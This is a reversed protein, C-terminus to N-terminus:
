PLCIVESIYITANTDLNNAAIIDETTTGYKRALSFVTDDGRVIYPRMGPCFAPNAIPLELTSGAVIDGSDIGNIAMLEISTNHKNAISYLTDGPQVSYPITIIQSQRTPPEQSQQSALEPTQVLDPTTSEIESNEQASDVSEPGSSSVPEGPLFVAKESDTSLSILLDNVVVDKPLNLQVSTTTRDRNAVLTIAIFTAIACFIASIVLVFVMSMSKRQSQDM